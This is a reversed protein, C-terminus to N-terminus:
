RPRELLFRYGLGRATLIYSSGSHHKLKRRLNGIHTRVTRPDSLQDMGWIREYIHDVTFYQNPYTALLELIQLEKMTLSIEQEGIFCQYTHRNFILDGSVIVHNLSEDAMQGIRRLNAMIRAELEALDFPKTLYDDGGLEFGKIKDFSSRRHSIFIIPMHSVKRIRQCVKFGDMKPIEIDLVMLHIPESLVISMAEEGNEAELVHYGRKRLYLAMLERTGLDDEVLLLHHKGM